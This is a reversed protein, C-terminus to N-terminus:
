PLLRGPFIAAKSCLRIKIPKERQREATVFGETVKPLHLSFYALAFTECETVYLAFCM